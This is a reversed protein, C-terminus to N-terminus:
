ARRSLREQHTFLNVVYNHTICLGLPPPNSHPRTAVCQQLCCLIVSRGGMVYAGYGFAVVRSGTLKGAIFWWHSVSQMGRGHAM